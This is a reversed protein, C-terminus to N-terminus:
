PAGLPLQVVREPGDRLVRYREPDLRRGAVRLEIAGPERVAFAIGALDALDPVFPEGVPGEVRRLDIVVRGTETSAEYRLFTRVFEHHLLRGTPAVWVDGARYRRRLRALGELGEASFVEHAAHVWHTYLIATSGSEVLRRLRDETLLELSDFGGRGLHTRPFTIVRSGDDLTTTRLYSRRGNWDFEPADLRGELEVCEYGGRNAIMKFYRIGAERVLDANYYRSGPNDGLAYRVPIWWLVAVVAGLFAVSPIWYRPRRLRRVLLSAGVAALALVLLGALLGLLLRQQEPLSRPATPFPFRVGLREIGLEITATLGIRVLNKAVVQLAPVVDPEICSPTGQISHNVWVRVRRHPEAQLWALGAKVAERTQAGPGSTHLVDLWGRRLWEDVLERHDRGDAHVNPLPRGTEPDYGRFVGLAEGYLWFSDGIPLDFGRIGDRWADRQAVAPDRILSRWTPSGREIWEDTRVLAHVAEVREVPAPHTDSSVTAAARYPHPYRLLEVDPDGAAPRPTAAALLLAGATALRRLAIM